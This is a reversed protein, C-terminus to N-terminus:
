STRRFTNWCNPFMKASRAYRAAAIPAPLKSPRTPGPKARCIRPCRAVRRNADPLHPPVPARQAASPEPPPNTTQGSELDELRLQLQEIQRDLRESKRGFQMRQLKLVRLKLNEIENDRSLLQEHQALVLAKLAEQNLANLDPLM